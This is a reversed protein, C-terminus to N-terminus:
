VGETLDVSKSGKNGWRWETRTSHIESHKGWFHEAVEPLHHRQDTM